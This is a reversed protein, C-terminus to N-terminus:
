VEKYEYKVVPVYHPVSMINQYNTYIAKFDDRSKIYDEGRKQCRMWLAPEPGTCYIIMAGNKALMRELEYMEPYSIVSADRMVPGYAMESYWCRDFIANKNEKIAQLYMGMMLKKEEDSKPQSRHIIPYSTQRSLQQALTTKGSGDPGEIVIIM